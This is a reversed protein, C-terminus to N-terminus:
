HRHSTGILVLVIASLCVIGMIGFFVTSSSLEGYWNQITKAIGDKRKLHGWRIYLITGYDGNNIYADYGAAHLDALALHPHEAISGGMSISTMFYGKAVMKQIDAYVPKMNVVPPPIAVKAAAQTAQEADIWHAIKPAVPTAVPNAELTEWGEDIEPM